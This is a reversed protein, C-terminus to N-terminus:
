RLGKASRERLSLLKQQSKGEMTGASYVSGIPFGSLHDNGRKRMGKVNSIFCTVFVIETQIPVPRSMVAVVM